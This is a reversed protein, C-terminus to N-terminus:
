LEVRKPGRNLLYIALFVIAFCRHSKLITRGRSGEDLQLMNALQDLVQLPILLFLLLGVVIWASARENRDFAQVIWPALLALVIMEYAIVQAFCLTGVATMALLWAPDLKQKWSRLFALVAWFAFGAITMSVKLDIAPGGMAVLLRNWSLIQFNEAVLNFKVAKHASGLYDLYERLFLVSGGLTGRVIFGGFLHLLGTFLLIGLVRRWGGLIGALLLFPLTLHPKFFILAWLFCGYRPRNAEFCYQGAALCGVLFLGTQGVVLAPLTVPNLLVALAIWSAGDGRKTPDRGFTYALTGCALGCLSLLITWAIEAPIWPLIAFPAFIVIAQPTLFFGCNNAFSDEDEPPYRERVISHILETDYPSRGELAIVAGLRYIYFDLQDNKILSLTMIVVYALLGLALLRLRTRASDDSSM